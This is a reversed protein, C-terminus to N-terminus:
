AAKLKPLSLFGDKRNNLRKHIEEIVETDRDIFVSHLKQVAEKRYKAPICISIRRNDGGMNISEVKIGFVNLVTTITDLVDGRNEKLEDGVIAISITEKKNWEIQPLSYEEGGVVIKKLERLANRIDARKKDLDAKDGPLPISFGLSTGETFINDVSIAHKYLISTIAAVFGPRNAMDNSKVMLTDIQPNSIIAKFPTESSTIEGSHFNTGVNQEPKDINRIELALGHKGALSLADLQMLGSGASAMELGEAISVDEQLTPKNIEKELDSPNATLVGDVEKWFRIHKAREGRAEMALAVNVATTDSYSRGVDVAIGRPTGAIHGGFIRIVGERTEQTATELSNEVAKQMAGHLEPFPTPGKGKFSDEPCSVNEFHHVQYHERKLKLYLELLKGSILEGFAVVQDRIAFSGEVPDLINSVKRHAMLATRLKGFEREYLSSAETENGKFHTNIIEGHKKKTAKFAEDISAEAYDMGSLQNMADLLTNTVKEFASVVLTINEGKKKLSDMLNAVQDLKSMNAGGIKNVTHIVEHIPETESM